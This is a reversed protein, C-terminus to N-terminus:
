NRTDAPPMKYSYLREEWDNYIVQPQRTYILKSEGLLEHDSETVQHNYTKPNLLRPDDQTTAPEEQAPPPEPKKKNLATGM